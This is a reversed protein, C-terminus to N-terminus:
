RAEICPALEQYTVISIRCLPCTRPAGKLANIVQSMLPAKVKTLAGAFSAVPSM